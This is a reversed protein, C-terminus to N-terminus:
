CLLGNRVMGFLYGRHMPRQCTQSGMLQNLAVVHQLAFYLVELTLERADCVTNENFKYPPPSQSLVVVAPCPTVQMKM